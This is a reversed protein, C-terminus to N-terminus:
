EGFTALDVQDALVAVRESPLSDQGLSGCRDWYQCLDLDVGQMGSFLQGYCRGPDGIQGADLKRV